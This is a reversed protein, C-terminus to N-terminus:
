PAPGWTLFLTKINQNMHNTHPYLLKCKIIIVKKKVVDLLKYVIGIDSYKNEYLFCEIQQMSSGTITYYHAKILAKNRTSNQDMIM